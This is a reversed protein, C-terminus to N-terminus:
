SCSCFFLWCSYKNVASVVSDWIVNQWLRTQYRSHMLANLTGAHHVESVISEEWGWPRWTPFVPIILNWWCYSLLSSVVDSMSNAQVGPWMFCSGCLTVVTWKLWKVNLKPNCPNLPNSGLTWILGRNHNLRTPHVTSHNSPVWQHLCSSTVHHQPHQFSSSAVHSSALLSEGVCQLSLWWM